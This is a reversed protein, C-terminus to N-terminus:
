ESGFAPESREFTCVRPTSSPSSHTMLPWFTHVVSACRASQHKQLRAAGVGVRRRVLAERVQEDRHVLGADRDPRQLLHRAGGLEVLDEEVVGAGVADSTSPSTLSPQFTAIAVSPKSRPM